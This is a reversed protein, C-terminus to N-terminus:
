EGGFPKFIEDGLPAINSCLLQKESKNNLSIQILSLLEFIKDREMLIDIIKYLSFKFWLDPTYGM